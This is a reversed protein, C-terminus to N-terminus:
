KKIILFTALDFAYTKIKKEGPMKKIEDINVYSCAFLPTLLILWFSIFWKPKTMFILLMTGEPKLNKYFRKIVLSPKELHSMVWTSIVLDYKTPIKVKKLDGYIFKVNKEKGYKHRAIEQMDKSFDVGIYSSFPKGLSLMREINIGTGCGLEVIKSNLKINRNLEKIFDDELNFEVIRTWLIRFLDYWKANFIHYLKQVSNLSMEEVKKEKRRWCM